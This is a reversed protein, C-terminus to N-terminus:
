RLIVVGGLVGSSPIYVRVLGWYRFKGLLGKKMGLSGCIIKRKLHHLIPLNWVNLWPPYIGIPLTWRYHQNLLVLSRTIGLFLFSALYRQVCDIM